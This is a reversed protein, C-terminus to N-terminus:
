LAFPTRGSFKWYVLSFALNNFYNSMLKIEELMKEIDSPRPCRIMQVEKEYRNLTTESIVYVKVDAFNSEPLRIYFNKSEYPKESFTTNYIVSGNMYEVILKYQDVENGINEVRILLSPRNPYCLPPVKLIEVRFDYYFNYYLFFTLNYTFTANSIVSINLNVIKPPLNIYSKFCITVEKKSNPLVQVFFSSLNMGLIYQINKETIIPKFFIIRTKNLQNYITINECVTRYPPVIIYRNYIIKLGASSASVLILFICLIFKKMFM